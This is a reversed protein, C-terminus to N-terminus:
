LLYNVNDKCVTITHQQENYICIYSVIFIVFNVKKKKSLRSKTKTHIHKNEHM